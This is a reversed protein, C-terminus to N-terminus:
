RRKRFKMGLLRDTMLFLLDWVAVLLAMGALGIGEFESRLSELGMVSLLLWYAAVGAITFLTLKAATRIVKAPIRELWPRLMPYYGLFVYVVAAEKDPAMVLGLIGVAMYYCWGIKRGCQQLVPRTLLICLVPCVYTNVPIMSGLCMIVVAVATLMGGLAVQKASTRM